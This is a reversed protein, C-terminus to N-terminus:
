PRITPSVRTPQPKLKKTGISTPAQVPNPQALLITFVSALTNPSCYVFFHLRQVLSLSVLPHKNLFIWIPKLAFPPTPYFNITNKLPNPLPAGPIHTNYMPNKSHAPRSVETHPWAISGNMDTVDVYVDGANAHMTQASIRPGNVDRMDEYLDTAGAQSAGPLPVNVYSHGNAQSTAKFSLAIAISSSPTQTSALHTGTLSVPPIITHIHLPFPDYTCLPSVCLHSPAQPQTSLSLTFRFVVHARLGAFPPSSCHSASLLTLAFGPLSPSPVQSAPLPM